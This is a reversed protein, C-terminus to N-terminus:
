PTRYALWNQTMRDVQGTTFMKMCADASYDMFNIIPDVGRSPCTDRGVACGLNPRAEAPTDRVRDNRASCGGEFTHFLGLWHGVEHVATDGRNYGRFSGGPFSGGHVTVGDLRPKKGARWPMSSWGLIASGAEPSRPASVYLNLADPGGRHLARRLRRDVRDFITATSWRQNRTRDFSELYFRFRTDNGDASQGGAYARNIIALQQRVQQRGPGRSRKADIVHVHVPIRLVFGFRATRSAIGKRELTSQLRREIRRLEPGTYSESDSARDLRSRGVGIEQPRGAPDCRRHEVPAVQAVPAVPAAYSTTVLAAMLVVLAAAPAAVFRARRDIGPSTV